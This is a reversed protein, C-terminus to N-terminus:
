MWTKARLKLQDQKRATFRRALFDYFFWDKLAFPVLHYLLQEGLTWNVGTRDARRNSPICWLDFDYRQRGLKLVRQMVEHDELVFPWRVASFGGAKRLVDTRFSQGFGGTHCQKPLVTAVIMTKIQRRRAAGSIPAGPLGTAMAAVASELAATARRLYQPPYFTDADCFAVFETEVAALGCALAHIKGPRSEHMFVADKLLARAVEASGDTSANDVLIFRFDKFEQALLSALTAPLYDRENYYPIVM